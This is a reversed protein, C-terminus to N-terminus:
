RRSVSVRKAQRGQAALEPIFRVAAGVQVREWPTGAVNDPGFWYEDGDATRIFGCRDADSVRVVEGQLQQAHLKQEGRARQASQEIQRKMDDFADRLAVYVDHHQM